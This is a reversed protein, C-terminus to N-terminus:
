FTKEVNKAWLHRVFNLDEQFCVFALGVDSGFAIAQDSLGSPVIDGKHVIIVSDGSVVDWPNKPCDLGVRITYTYFTDVGAFASFPLKAGAEFVFTPKLLPIQKVAAGVM